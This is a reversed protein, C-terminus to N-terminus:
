SNEKTSSSDRVLIADAPSFELHLEGQWEQQSAARLSFALGDACEVQLLETAGHFAQRKIQGRFQVTGNNATGAVVRVKEPRLSFM